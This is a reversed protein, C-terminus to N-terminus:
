LNKMIIEKLKKFTIKTKIGTFSFQTRSAKGNYREILNITKEIGLMDIKLKKSIEEMDYFLFINENQMIKLLNEIKEKNQFYYPINISKVTDPDHLNGYWVPGYSNFSNLLDMKMIYDLNKRAMTRSKKLRFFIRYYYGGFISLIPYSYFDYEAAREIFYKILIRTGIEHKYVNRIPISHYKRLCTGPNTGALNANDTSTIGIIGNNKISKLSVDIFPIPSGYPDIDIYDYFGPMCKSADYNLITADSGVMDRNKKIIEINKKNVDNIFVKGNAEKEIRFGRIGTGGLMDLATFNERFNQKLVLITFDRTLAMPLSYYGAESQGPGRYTSIMEIEIEVLGERVIM